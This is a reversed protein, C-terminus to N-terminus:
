QPQRDHSMRKARHNSGRANTKTIKNKVGITHQDITGPTCFYLFFYIFQM